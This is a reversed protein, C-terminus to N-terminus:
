ILKSDLIVTNKCTGKLLLSTDGGDTTQFIGGTQGAARPYAVLWAKDYDYAHIMSIGLNVNSIDITGSNWTDGSNNTRTFEQVNEGSGSGDYATGWVINENVISSLVPNVVNSNGTSTMSDVDAMQGIIPSTM